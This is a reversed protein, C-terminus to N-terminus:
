ARTNFDWFKEVLMTHAHEGAGDKADVAKTAGGSAMNEDEEDARKAKLKLCDPRM